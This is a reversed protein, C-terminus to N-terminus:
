RGAFLKELYEKKFEIFTPHGDATVNPQGCKFLDTVLTKMEKAELGTGAKVGQQRALSRTLMERKSLKMESNFHKYADLLEEIATKENGQLIDGPVGQIIFSDKGFPEVKYGVAHLEPLLDNLLITDTSSLHITSPFLSQQSAVAQGNVAAVFQEYLIRQHALQQNVLIFGRSTSAIIYTNHLQLFPMDEILEFPVISASHSHFDVTEKQPSGEYFERWHKLETKEQPEIFHAQNKQTFTKFLGSSVAM